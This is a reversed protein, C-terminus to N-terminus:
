PRTGSGASPQRFRIAGDGDVEMPLTGSRWVLRRRTDVLPVVSALDLWPARAQLRAALKCPAYVLRPLEVVYGADRGAYLAREFDGSQLSVAVVESRVEELPAPLSAATDEAGADRPGLRALAVLRAALDSAAQEGDPAVARPTLDRADAPPTRPELRCGTADRWWFPAEAPRSEARVADQFQTVPLAPSSPDIPTGAPSVWVYISTWPLSASDYGDLSNGYDAIAPEGTVVIDVREDLLERADRHLGAIVEIVPVSDGPSVLDLGETAEAGDSAPAVGGTGVPWVRGPDLRVVALGLDAFRVPEEAPEEELPIVVGAAGLSASWVGARALSAVVDDATVRTSDWFRVDDRLVFRWTRGVPDRVWSQALGGYVRGACDVNVLTGYLNAFVM